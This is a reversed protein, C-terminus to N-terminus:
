RWPRRWRNQAKSTNLEPDSGSITMDACSSPIQCYRGGCFSGESLIVGRAPLTSDASTNSSYMLRETGPAAGLVCAAPRRPGGFGGLRVALPNSSWGSPGPRSASKGNCIQIATVFACITQDSSSTNFPRPGGPLRSSSSTFSSPCIRIKLRSKFRIFRPLTPSPVMLAVKSTRRSYRFRKGREFGALSSIDCCAQLTSLVKHFM